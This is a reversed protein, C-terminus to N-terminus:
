EVIITKPMTYAACIPMDIMGNLCTGNVTSPAYSFMDPMVM